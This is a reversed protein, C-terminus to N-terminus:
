LYSARAPMSAAETEAFEPSVRGIVPEGGLPMWTDEVDPCVLRIAAEESSLYLMTGKSAAIMPRLRIRDTLGMMEGTRGVVIAFPGNMLLSPYVQRLLSFLDRSEPDFHEIETWLPPSLVGATVELSLGHRRALLDVAYALVETDTEMTCEYGFMELYRRNIGYSSIEGNHVVTGDLICFPHAGGWWGSSNTPFRAHATWLYGRYEDLRFFEAIQEPFGVGKFVGMNKGSSIVFAGEVQGNIYMVQAVVYDEESYGPALEEAVTLFYRWLLPANIIGRTPRTPIAEGMHVRFRRSLLEELRPRADESMYLVHFAYCEAYDPYIGYVAFGGGLGNGREHMNAIATIVPIGSFCAGSRDIAGFIACAASVRDDGYPNSYRINHSKSM